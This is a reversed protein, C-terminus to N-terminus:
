IVYLLHYSFPSIMLLIVLSTSLSVSLIVSIIGSSTYLTENIIPTIIIISIRSTLSANSVIIAIGIVYM